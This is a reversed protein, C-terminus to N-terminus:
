SKATSNKRATIQAATVLRTLKNSAGMSISSDCKPNERASATPTTPIMASATPTNMSLASEIPAQISATEM